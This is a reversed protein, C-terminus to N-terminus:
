GEARVCALARPWRTFAVLVAARQDEARVYGLVRGADDACEFREREDLHLVKGDLRGAPIGRTAREVEAQTM